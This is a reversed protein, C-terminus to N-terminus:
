VELEEACRPCFDWSDELMNMLFWGADIVYNDVRYLDSEITEAEQIYRVRGVTDELCSDCKSCFLALEGEDTIRKTM